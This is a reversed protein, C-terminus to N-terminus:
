RDQIARLAPFDYTELSTCGELFTSGTRTVGSLGAFDISTLSEADSLFYDGLSTVNSLGSFEISALATCSSLFRNGISTVSSLGVFNFPEFTHLSKCAYLFYQGIKTVNRLGSFDISELSSCKQLFKDDIATIALPVSLDLSRLNTGALFKCPIVTVLEAQLFLRVVEPDEVRALGATEGLARLAAIAKYRNKQTLVVTDGASLATINIDEGEDDRGFGMDFSDEAFGRQLQWRRGCTRRQTM